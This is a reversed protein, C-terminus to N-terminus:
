WPGTASERIEKIGLNRESLIHAIMDNTSESILLNEHLYAKIKHQLTNEM